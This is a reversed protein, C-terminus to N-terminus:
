LLGELKRRINELDELDSDQEEQEAQEQQWDLQDLNQEPPLTLGETKVIQWAYGASDCAEIADEVLIQEVTPVPFDQAELLLCYRTADDQAEFLLVIDYRNIKLSHVGETERGSEFLLIFAERLRQTEYNRSSWEVLESWEGPFSLRGGKAVLKFSYGTDRAYSILDALELSIVRSPSKITPSYALADEQSEFVPVIRYQGLAISLIKDEEFLLLYLRKM